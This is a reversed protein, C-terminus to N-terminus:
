EGIEYEITEINDKITVIKKTIPQVVKIGTKKEKAGVIDNIDFNQEADLDVSIEDCNYSEELRSLGGAVM